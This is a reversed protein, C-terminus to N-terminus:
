YGIEEANFSNNPDRLLELQKAMIHLQQEMISELELSTNSDNAAEDGPADPTAELLRVPLENFVETLAKFQETAGTKLHIEKESLIEESLDKRDENHSTKDTRSRNLWYRQREFPYTPLVVRQRKESAYFEDWDVEVGALWTKGIVNLIYEIEQTQKNAPCLCSFVQLNETGEGQQLVLKQLAQGPGVELFLTGGLKMLEEVGESFRVTRRLHRAWYDTNTAEEKSILKGSVNSIYPIKPARLKLREVEGTFGELMPEMMHSHFGHSTALRQCFIGKDALQEELKNISVESGSVVCLGTSNVAALSIGDGVITVLEAESLGVAIMRGSAMEQMMRGRVVVLRLADEVSFVEALCAAVYEGISHGIMAEPRVGWKMLLKGLAYEVVFLAPQTISTQNLLEAAVGIRGKEPYIIERIDLGLHLKLIEACEVVQQRYTKENEYLEVGMNVYQSGQGPFMFVVPRYSGDHYGTLARNGDIAELAKVADTRNECVLMRRYGFEKRGVKLTYAVDALKEEEHRKLHAALNRTMTDLATSTKASLLLLQYPQAPGSEGRVPAEELIAHANTGGIGFSSVGARRISEGTAWDTLKTNVYFPSNAFDIQQNPENFHLSPPIQKHKLALVTKILGAVGAAADLHGINTKVSGIACFETKSTHSRFAKTLAAVEIPDGLPTATGHAEVYTISEVDIDAIGIAQTIVEAQGDISPATYGAKSAGDNNIASAKIIAEINDGDELADPLRKLVVVGVGSGGVTGQAARDFARCHGDPSIIGGEVYYYGIKQSANISVGGALALDCEGSLLSQCAIHVAVLSTSCATQVGISPGKLNLKYSALTTLYDKDNALLARYEGVLRMLKLNSYLKLMYSSFNSGAFVGISGSYSDPNYGANELAEWASELFFRHQPDTIEAAKSNFGFFSADFLEIDELIARAKVYNADSFIAPSIGSSVLEEDSFFSVSEVGMRLNQWFKDINNAGPFRLAIGIIAIEDTRDSENTTNMGKHGM